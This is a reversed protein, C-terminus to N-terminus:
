DAVPLWVSVTTGEGPVGQSTLEIRGQLRDVEQKAITLGLGTGHYGPGRGATGRFYPEFVHRQEDPPIGPGTDRVTFGVWQRDDTDQTGTTVAVEGGKPTYIVANALIERLVVGLLHDNSQAPPLDPQAAFTLKLEGPEALKQAGAVGSGVVTNLDVAKLPPYPEWGTKTLLRMWDLLKDLRYCLWETLRRLTTQYKDRRELDKDGHERLLHQYLLINVYAIRLEHHLDCVFEETLRGELEAVRARLTAVEELLQERTKDADTM